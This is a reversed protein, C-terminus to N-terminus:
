APKQRVLAEPKVGLRKSPPSSGKPGAYVTLITFLFVAVMSIIGAVIGWDMWSMFCERAHRGHSGKRESATHDEALSDARQIQRTSAIAGHPALFTDAPPFSSAHRRSSRIAFGHGDRHIAAGRLIM